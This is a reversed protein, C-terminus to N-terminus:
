CFTYFPPPSVEGRGPTYSGAGAPPRITQPKSRGSRAPLLAWMVEAEYSAAGLYARQAAVPM